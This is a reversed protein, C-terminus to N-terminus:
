INTNMPAILVEIDKKRLSEVTKSDADSDTIITNVTDLGCVLRLGTHGLKTHDLVAITKKACEIMKRKISGEASSGITFGVNESVGSAAFFFIDSYLNNMSSVTIEDFFSGTHHNYNGGALYLNINSNQSLIIASSFSNTIVTIPIDKECIKKAIENATSGSDLTITMGPKIIESAIFSAIATKYSLNSTSRINLNYANTISDVLVAGGFTRRLVGQAELSRLDNRITSESCSLTDCLESLSVSEKEALMNKIREHRLYVKNGTTALM